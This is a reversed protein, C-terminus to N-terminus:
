KKAPPLTYEGNVECTYGAAPEASKLTCTYTGEGKIGKLKGTGGTIIFKGSSTLSKLNGPGTSRTFLKDGNDYRTIGAATTRSSAGTVEVFRTNILEKPQLGELASGKPWTCKNQDMFFAFGDRDPIPITYSPDGKECDLSGSLKTQGVASSALALACVIFLLRKAM